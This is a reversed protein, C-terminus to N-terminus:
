MDGALEQIRESYFSCLAPSIGRWLSDTAKIRKSTAVKGYVVLFSEGAQMKGISKPNHKALTAFMSQVVSTTYGMRDALIDAYVVMQNTEYELLTENIAKALSKMAPTYLEVRKELVMNDQKSAEVFQTLFLVWNIITQSNISGNHQRFEITGLEDLSLLNVKFYRETSSTTNRPFKMTDILEHFTTVTNDLKIGKCPKAFRSRNARRTTGLMSDIIPEFKTYRNFVNLVDQVSLGDTDVHVHLGCTKNVRCGLTQLALAIRRVAKIDEPNTTDLIPSVLEHPLMDIYEEHPVRESRHNYDLSEDETLTWNKYSHNKARGEQVVFGVKRLEHRLSTNDLPSFFEMEIGFRM